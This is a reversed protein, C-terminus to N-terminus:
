VFAGDDTEPLESVDLGLSEDEGGNGVGAEGGGSRRRSREGVAKGMFGAFTAMWEDGSEETGEAAWGGEM